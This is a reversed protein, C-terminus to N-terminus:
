GLRLGRHSDHTLDVAYDEEVLLRELMSEFVRDDEVVLVAPPEM